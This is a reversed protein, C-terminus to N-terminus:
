YFSIPELIRAKHELSAGEGYKEGSQRHGMFDRAISDQVEAATLRDRFSHRFSYCTMFKKPDDPHRPVLDNNKLFKNINATANTPKERYKESFGNPYCRMAELAIGILPIDRESQDTKLERGDPKIQIHPINCSLHIHQRQLGIVESPRCGTNIVTLLIARCEPNLKDLTGPRLALKIFEEPVPPRTKKKREKIHLERFPNPRDLQARRAYTSWMSSLSTMIRNASSAGIEGATLREVLHTHVALADHRSIDDIPKVENIEHFLDLARIFPNKWVRMQDDSKNAIDAARASKFLDFLASSKESVDGAIGTAAIASERPAGETAILRDELERDSLEGFPKYQFGLSRCHKVIAEFQELSNKEIGVEQAQWLSLFRERAEEAKNLADLRDRTKLSFRVHPENHLHAYEAPVRMNFHWVNGRQKINESAM